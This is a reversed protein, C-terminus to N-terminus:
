QNNASQIRSNIRRVVEESGVIIVLLSRNFFYYLLRRDNEQNTVIRVEKNDVVKEGVSVSEPHSPLVTNPFVKSFTNILNKEWNLMWVFADEYNKISLIMVGHVATETTYNGVFYYGDLTNLLGVPLNMVFFDSFQSLTLHVNENERTEYPVFQSIIHQGGQGRTIKGWDEPSSSLNVLVRRESNVADKRAELSSPPIYGPVESPRTAISIIIVILGALIVLIVGITFINQKQLTRNKPQEIGYSRIDRARMGQERLVEKKVRFEKWADRMSERHVIEEQQKKMKEREEDSFMDADKQKGRLRRLFGFRSRPPEPTGANPPSKEAPPLPPTNTPMSASEKQDNPIGSSIGRMYDAAGTISDAVHNKRVTQENAVQGKKGSASTSDFDRKKNKLIVSEKMLERMNKAYEKQAKKKEEMEQALIVRLEAGGKTRALQSTDNEYTRLVPVPSKRRKPTDKGPDENSTHPNDRTRDPADAHGKQTDDTKKGHTSNDSREM